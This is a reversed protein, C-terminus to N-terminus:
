LNVAYIITIYLNVKNRKNQHWLSNNRPQLRFTVTHSKHCKFFQAASLPGMCWNEKTSIFLSVQRLCVLPFVFTLMYALSPLWLYLFSLIFAFSCFFPLRFLIIFFLFVKLCYIDIVTEQPSHCWTSRYTLVLMEKSCVAEMEMSLVVMSTNLASLVDFRVFAPWNDESSTEFGSDKYVSVTSVVLRVVNPALTTISCTLLYVCLM